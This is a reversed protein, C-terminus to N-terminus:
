PRLGQAYKTLRALQMLEPDALDAPSLSARLLDESIGAQRAAAEVPDSESARTPVREPSNRRESSHSESVRAITQFANWLTGAAKEPEEGLRRLRIGAFVRVRDGGRRPQRTATQPFAAHLNRSLMPLTGPHDRHQDNCWSQWAAFLDACAIEAGPEVACCDAVFAKIPSALRDLQEVIAVGAAPQLLNGRQRLRDLGELAWTFIAPLEALLKDTLSTDEHGYFSRTMPLILFRSALAGSVDTLAPLENTLLLFRTPLQGVWDPQFKRPVSVADQGSIRLLNETVAALDSRGSIRADSVIALPKGVLGALGFNQGLGALTPATTNDNGVVARLVRAITGKGSRKPGIMLAIKQQSTDASVMLGFLEQLAAATEQDDAWLSGLFQLWAAPRTASFDYGFDLANLNFYGPTPPLLERTAVHLLGNACAIFEGEISPDILWCPPKADLYAAARLADLTNDVLRKTPKNTKELWSYLLARIADSPMVRFHNAGWRYFDGRWFHLKRGDLHAFNDAIFRRAIELPANTDLPPFQGGSSM